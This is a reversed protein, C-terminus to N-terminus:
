KGRHVYKVERQQKGNIGHGKSLSMEQDKCLHRRDCGPSRKMGKLEVEIVWLGAAFRKGADM